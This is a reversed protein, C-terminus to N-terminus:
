RLILRGTSAAFVNIGDGCAAWVNGREDCRIGDPIGVAVNAFVRPSSLGCGTVLLTFCSCDRSQCHGEKRQKGDDLVDFVMVHHAGDKDFTPGWLGGSDAVYLLTEDPSFCLGNPRHLDATMAEVKGSPKADPGSQVRFVHNAKQLPKERYATVHRGARLGYDPDTFWISGDTRRQTHTRARARARVRACSSM